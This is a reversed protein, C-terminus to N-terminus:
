FVARNNQTAVAEFTNEASLSALHKKQQKNIAPDIGAALLKRVSDRKERAELLSVEPYVGLALLKQKHLFRYALRWYRSGNPMVHLFLGHSDSKKYGKEAPKANKCQIDTLAM